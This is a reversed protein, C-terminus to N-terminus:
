YPWYMCLSVDVQFRQKLEEKITLADNRVAIFEAYDPLAYVKNRLKNELKDKKRILKDIRKQYWERSSSFNELKEMDTYLEFIERRIDEATWKEDFNNEAAMLSDVLALATGYKENFRDKLEDLTSAM